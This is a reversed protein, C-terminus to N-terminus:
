FRWMYEKENSGMLKEGRSYDFIKLMKHACEIIFSM